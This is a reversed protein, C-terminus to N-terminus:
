QRCRHLPPPHAPPDRPTAGVHQCWNVHPATLRHHVHRLARDWANEDDDCRSISNVILAEAHQLQLAVSSPQFGHLQKVSEFIDSLEQRCASTMTPSPVVLKFNDIPLKMPGIPSTEADASKYDEDTSARAAHVNM